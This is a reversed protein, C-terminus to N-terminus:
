VASQFMGDAAASMLNGADATMFIDGPSNRGEAKIREILAGAKDEIVNVEIGTAETFAEFLVIDSDYHRATYLNLEGDAFVPVATSALAAVLTGGLLARFTM